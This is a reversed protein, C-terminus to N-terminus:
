GRVENTRYHANDEVGSEKDVDAGAKLLLKVIAFHGGRCACTLPTVDQMPPVPYLVWHTCLVVVTTPPVIPLPGTHLLSMEGCEASGGRGDNHNDM